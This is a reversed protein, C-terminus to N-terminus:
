GYTEGAFTVDNGDQLYNGISTFYRANPDHRYPWLDLDAAQRTKGYEIGCMPVGCDAAGYNEGYSFIKDHDELARRTHDDGNALRLQSTVPDSEIYIRLPAALHTERLDVTGFNFLADCSRYLGDLESGSLGWCSGGDGGFRFAWRNTLGVREMCCAIHRVAYSCDDTVTQQVPDFPWVADDEVYWVEHGNKQFGRLWNLSLWTQGGLPCRGM